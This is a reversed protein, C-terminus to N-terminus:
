HRQGYYRRHLEAPDEGLFFAMRLRWMLLVTRWTGHDQWRRASTILRQRLCVPLAKARLAQAMAIDEMLPLEPFGGVSDFLRRSVFLGQDGTAIGTLRSRWNMSWAIIRFATGPADLSVDFRGWARRGGRFVEMIAEVADEPVRTDAHLFWLVDGSSARAGHNMQVARGRPGELVRDVLPAAMERTDDTSGGDVLLVEHGTQRAPQLPQLCDVISDAENLAPIVISIRM